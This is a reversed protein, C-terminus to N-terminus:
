PWGQEAATGASCPLLRGSAASRMGAESSALLVAGLFVVSGGLGVFVLLVLFVVFVLM